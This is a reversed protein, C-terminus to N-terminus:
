EKDKQKKHEKKMKDIKEDDKKTKQEAKMEDETKYEEKNKLEDKSMSTIVQYHEDDDGKTIDVSDWSLAVNKEGMGLFGGVGTILGVVQGDKNIVLNTISGIKEDSENMIDSEVLQDSFIKGKVKNNMESKKASASDKDMAQKQDMAESDNKEQSNDQAVAIGSILLGSLLCAQYAKM